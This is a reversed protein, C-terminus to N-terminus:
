AVEPALVPRALRAAAIGAAPVVVASILLELGEPMGFPARGYLCLGDVAVGLAVLLVAVPLTDGMAPRGVLLCFLLIWLAVIVPM